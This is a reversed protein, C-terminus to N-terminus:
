NIERYYRKEIYQILNDSSLPCDEQSNGSEYSLSTYKYTLSKPDYSTIYMIGYPIMDLYGYEYVRGVYYYGKNKIKIKAKWM